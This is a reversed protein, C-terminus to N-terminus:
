ARNALLLELSRCAKISEVIFCSSASHLDWGDTSPAPGRSSTLPSILPAARTLTCDIRSTLTQHSMSAGVLSSAQHRQHCWRHYAGKKGVFPHPSTLTLHGNKIWASEREVAYIDVREGHKVRTRYDGARDGGVDSSAKSAIHQERARPHGPTPEGVSSSTSADSKRDVRWCPSRRRRCRRSSHEEQGDPALRVATANNQTGPERETNTMNTNIGDDHDVYSGLSFPMSVRRSPEHVTKKTKKDVPIHTM